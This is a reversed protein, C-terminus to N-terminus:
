DDKPLSQLIRVKNQISNRQMTALRDMTAFAATVIERLFAPTELACRYYLNALALFLNGGSTLSAATNEMLCTHENLARVLLQQRSGFSNYITQVTIACEESVSRVTFREHGYDAISRRTVALIDARRTLLRYVSPQRILRDSVAPVSLVPAFPNPCELG